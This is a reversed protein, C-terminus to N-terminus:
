RHKALKEYAEEKTRVKHCLWCVLGTGLVVAILLLVLLTLSPGGGTGIAFTGLDENAAVCNKIVMGVFGELEETGAGEATDPLSGTFLYFPMGETDLRTVSKLPSQLYHRHELLSDAILLVPVQTATLGFRAALSSFTKDSPSVHDIIAERRFKTNLVTALHQKEGFVVLRPIPSTRSTFFSDIASTSTLQAADPKAANRAWSFISLYGRQDSFENTATQGPSLFFLTPV